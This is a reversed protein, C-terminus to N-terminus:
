AGRPDVLRKVHFVILPSAGIFQTARATYMGDLRPPSAGHSFGHSEAFYGLDGGVALTNANKRFSLGAGPVMKWFYM